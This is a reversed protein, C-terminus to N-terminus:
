KKRYLFSGPPSRTKPREKKRKSVGGAHREKVDKPRREENLYYPNNNESTSKEGLGRLGPGGRTTERCLRRLGEKKGKQKLGGFKRVRSRTEAHNEKNGESM